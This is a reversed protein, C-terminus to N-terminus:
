AAWRFSTVLDYFRDVLEASPNPASSFEAVIALEGGPAPVAFRAYGDSWQAELVCIDQAAIVEHNDTRGAAAHAADDNSGRGEHGRDADLVDVDPFHTDHPDDGDLLALSLVARASMLDHGVVVATSLVAVIPADDTQEVVLGEAETAVLWERCDLGFAPLNLDVTM